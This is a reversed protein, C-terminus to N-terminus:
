LVLNKDIGLVALLPSNEGSKFVTVKKIRM